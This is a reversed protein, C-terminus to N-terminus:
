KGLAISALKVLDELTECKLVEADLLQVKLEEELNSVVAFLAIPPLDFDERLRLDMRYDSAPLDAVDLMAAVVAEWVKDETELVDQATPTTTEASSEASVVPESTPFDSLLDAFSNSM